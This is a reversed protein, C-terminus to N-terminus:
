SHKLNGISIRGSRDYVRPMSLFAEGYKFTNKKTLALHVRRPWRVRETKGVSDKLIEPLVRLM